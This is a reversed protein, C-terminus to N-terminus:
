LALDLTVQTVEFGMARFFGAAADDVLSFRVHLRRCGALKARRMMELVLSRGVGRHRHNLDTIVTLVEADRVGLRLLGVGLVEDARQVVLVTGERVNWGGLSLLAEAQANVAEKM